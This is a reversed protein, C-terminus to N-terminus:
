WFLALQGLPEATATAPEPEATAPEATASPAALPGALVADSLAAFGSFGDMAVIGGLKAYASTKTIDVRAVDPVVGTGLAAVLMQNFDGSQRVADVKIDPNAAEFMPIIVDNLVPTEADGYTHWFTITTVSEAGALSCAGTLLMLTVLLALFRKM